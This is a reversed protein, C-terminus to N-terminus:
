EEIYNPETAINANWYIGFNVVILVIGIVLFALGFYLKIYGSYDQEGTSLYSIFQKGYDAIDRDGELAFFVGFVGVLVGIIGLLYNKIEKM